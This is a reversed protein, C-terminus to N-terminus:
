VDIIVIQDSTHANVQGQLLGVFGDDLIDLLITAPYIADADLSM